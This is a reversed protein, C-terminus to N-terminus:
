PKYWHTENGPHVRTSSPLRRSHQTPFSQTNSALSQQFSNQCQNIMDAVPSPLYHPYTYRPKKKQWVQWMRFNRPWPDFGHWLLSGLQQLSSVLDKVQQAVLSSRYEKAKTLEMWLSGTLNLCSLTLSAEEYGAPLLYRVNKKQNM